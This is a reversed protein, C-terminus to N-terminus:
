FIQVKVGKIQECIEIYAHSRVYLIAAIKYQAFCMLTVEVYWLTETRYFIIKYFIFYLFIPSGWVAVKSSLRHGCV